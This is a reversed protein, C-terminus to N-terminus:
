WASTDGSEFGDAFILGVPTRQVSFDSADTGGSGLSEWVAVFNGADDIAVSAHWQLNPTFTNVQLESGVVAGDSAYRQRQISWRSSDTGGSGDSAWVVVFDGDADMAVAPEFQGNTTYTNIQFEGDVISGDSAFRQGRPGYPYAGSSDRGQWVVVFDGDADMSVSPLTQFGTTYTNVQFEGGRASGDSAYRQGQISWNSSDTGSSGPSVWVVVFDGDSDQAVSLHRQRNTTYTNIQFEAGVEFGDSAYRRGHLNGGSYSYQGEWVVVFDGDEDLAVLPSHPFNKGFTAVEFQDGVASGDSAYRQGQISRVSSYYSESYINAWVVVFDGDADVAVSPSEQFDTTYTNVQFEAGKASGDSAYRQGRISELLPDYYDSGSNHWVVVFDGDADMAVSPSTQSGTTYTNVQVDNARATNLYPGNALWMVAVICVWRHQRM